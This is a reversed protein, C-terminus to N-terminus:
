WDGFTCVPGCGGSLHKQSSFHFRIASVQEQDYTPREAWKVPAAGAKLEECRPCDHHRSARGFAMTCTDNHKTAM